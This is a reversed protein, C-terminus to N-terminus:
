WVVATMERDAEQFRSLLLLPHPRMGEHVEEVWGAGKEIRGRIM